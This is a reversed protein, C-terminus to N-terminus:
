LTRSADRHPLRQTAQYSALTLFLPKPSIPSFLYSNDTNRITTHVFEEVCTPILTRAELFGGRDEPVNEGGAHSGDNTEM